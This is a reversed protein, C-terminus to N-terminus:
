KENYSENIQTIRRSSNIEKSYMKKEWQWELIKEGNFEQENIMM